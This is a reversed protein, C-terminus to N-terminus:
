EPGTETVSEGGSAVADAANTPLGAAPTGPFMATALPPAPYVNAGTTVSTPPPPVPSVAVAMSPVPASAPWTMPIMSLPVAVPYVEFGITRIAGGVAGACAVSVSSVFSTALPNASTPGTSEIATM